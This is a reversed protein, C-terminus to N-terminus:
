QWLLIIHGDGTFSMAMATKIRNSSLARFKCRSAKMVCDFYEPKQKEFSGNLKTISDHVVADMSYLSVQVSLLSNKKMESIIDDTLLTLNSLCECIIGTKQM